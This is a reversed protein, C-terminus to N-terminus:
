RVILCGVSQAKLTQCIADARAEDVPGAQVRFFIGRAGLDARVISVGLGGLAEPFRRQLRQFEQNAADEARLSAVQLRVTGGAPPATAGPESAAPEPLAAVTAPEPEPEPAPAPQPVAALPVALPAKPEPQAVPPATPIDAAIEPADATPPAPPAAPAAAPAPEPPQPRPLPEEPAPLLREVGTTASDPDLRGFVLKDQHPVEMGGPQEPRMKVPTGDAQILPVSAQSAVSRAGSEYAYWAVLGTLMVFGGAALALMARSRAPRGRGREDQPGPMYARRQRPSASDVPVPAEMEAGHGDGYGGLNPERRGSEFDGHSM